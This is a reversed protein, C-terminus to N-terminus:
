KGAQEKAYNDELIQQCKPLKWEEKNSYEKEACELVEKPWKECRAIQKARNAGCSKRADEDSQLQGVVKGDVLIKQTMQAVCDKMGKEILAECRSKKGSCAAALAVVFTVVLKM